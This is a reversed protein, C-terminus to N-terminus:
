AKTNSRRASLAQRMQKVSPALTVKGGTAMRRMPSMAALAQGQPTMSLINSGMAPKQKPPPIEPAQVGVPKGTPMGPQNRPLPPPLGPAGPAAPAGPPMGPGGQPMGPAAQALQQGPMQPQFDVGGPPLSNGKGPGPSVFRKVAMDPAEDVGVSKVSPAPGKKNLLVHALMQDQSVPGIAGGAKAHVVRAHTHAHTQHLHNHPLEYEDEVGERHSLHAQAAFNQEPFALFDDDDLGGHIHVSGGHAFFKIGKPQVYEKGRAAEQKAPSDIEYEGKNARAHALDSEDVHHTFSAQHELGSTSETPTTLIIAGAVKGNKTKFRDRPLFDDDKFRSDTPIMHPTGDINKGVQVLRPHLIHQKQYDYRHDNVTVHGYHAASPVTPRGLSNFHGEPGEAKEAPSLEEVPKGVGWYKAHTITKQMQRDFPSHRKVDTVAYANKPPTLNGDDNTFDRGSADTATITNRVRQKDRGIHDEISAGMKTKPGINSHTVYYGNEPDHLENTKGYSNAIIMPKGEAQRQKNLHRLVHRSSVDTEDVVNPRFLTVKNKRDAAAAVNRLSGTHALIWDQTMKPDHKAQEHCARRIAAGAYQTEAKPAFCIGKTTDVVGNADVGGGCGVTQGPCTNIVHRKQEDGHGSTYLSHGAVGKSAIGTYNRGESDTEHNVTDLKESKDLTTATKGIHKAARLRQLAEKEAAIQQEVPQQFHTDLLRKHLQGVQGIRLPARPEGGYVAARAENIQHMGESRTGNPRKAGTWMHKPQMIGKVGGSGEAPVFVRQPNATTAIDSPTDESPPQGGDALHPIRNALAQRMQATTLNM